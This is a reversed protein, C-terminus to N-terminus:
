KAVALVANAELALVGEAARDVDSESKSAAKNQIITQGSALMVLKFDVQAEYNRSASTDTNTVKGFVGGIKSATSQKLKSIDSTLVYDCNAARAGAESSVAIAEVNGVTLKQVLFGQLNTTSVNEGARNTPVYVGIRKMGPRKTASMPIQNSNSKPVENRPADDDDSVGASQMIASMDPRGYLDQSNNTMSYGQPIDFIAPDLTARSFELTETTQTFAMGEDGSNMTRTETLPFGIKGGGTTRYKINDRCGGVAGREPTQPGQPRMTLPCSFEPLDIYWGDSETRMNQKACADPSAEVSMSTKIHRATMGFMQKREGTDTVNSVYTITGGRTTPASKPKTVPAKSAAPAPTDDAGNDFPEIAYLRKKDSIKINRKLDCQEVTAVDGGIGMIGGGETRKRSGRVYTTSEMKQGNMSVTQRIKYNQAFSVGVAAMLILSVMVAKSIYKM